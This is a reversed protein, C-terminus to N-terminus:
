SGNEAELINDYLKCLDATRIEWSYRGLVSKRAQAGIETARHRNGLLDSIQLGLDDPENKPVLIGNEGHSIVEPIGGVPTAIVPLKSAMAELVTLPLGESLSPLCFVDVQRMESAVDDVYGKFQVSESIDLTSCRSKLQDELPGPGVIRLEASPHSCLVREFSNILTRIGKNEVLRGVYLVEKDWQHEPDPYYVDTDVGSYLVDVEVSGVLSTVNEQISNSVAILRDSYALVRRTITARYTRGLLEGIGGTAPFGGTHVTTVLPIEARTIKKWSAALLTSFFFRNHVHIIDPEFHTVTSRFKFIGDPSLQSQLGILETLEIRQAKYVTVTDPLWPYVEDGGTLAFIGVDLGRDALRLVTNKVVSEVGGAGAPPLYDTCILISNNENM